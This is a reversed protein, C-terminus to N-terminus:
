KKIFHTHPVGSVSIWGADLAIDAGAALIVVIGVFTLVWSVLWTGKRHAHISIIPKETAASTVEDWPLLKDRDEVGELHDVQDPTEQQKIPALQESASESDGTNPSNETSTHPETVTAAHAVEPPGGPSDNNAPSSAAVAVAVKPTENIPEPAKSSPPVAPATTPEPVAVEARKLVMPDDQEPKNSVIIPRSTSQPKVRSPHFIDFAQPGVPRPTKPPTSM